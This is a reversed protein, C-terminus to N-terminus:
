HLTMAEARRLLQRLGSACEPDRPRPGLREAEARLAELRKDAIPTGVFDDWDWEGATEDLVSRLYGAVETANRRVTRQPFLMQVLAIPVLVPALLVTIAVTPWDVSFRKM